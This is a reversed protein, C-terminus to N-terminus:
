TLVRIGVGGRLMRAEDQYWPGPVNIEIVRPEPRANEAAVRVDLRYTGPEVIHGYNNPRVILNFALSVQQPALSLAPNYEGFDARRQPDIIHAVDCHKGVKPSISPFYMEGALGPRSPPLHAWVLNMPPFTVVTEWTRDARQRTLAEASVEVNRATANGDNWVLVRLHIADAVINDRVM